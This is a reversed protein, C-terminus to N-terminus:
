ILVFFRCSCSIRIFYRTPLCNCLQLAGLLVLLAVTKM